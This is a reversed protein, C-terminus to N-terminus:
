SPVRNSPAGLDGASAVVAISLPKGLTETPHSTMGIFHPKVQRQALITQYLRKAPAAGTLYEDVGHAVQEVLSYRPTVNVTHEVHHFLSVPMHILNEGFAAGEHAVIQFASVSVRLCWAMDPTSDRDFIRRGKDPYPM